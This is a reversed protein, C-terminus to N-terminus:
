IGHNDVGAAEGELALKYKHFQRFEGRTFVHLLMHSLKSWVWVLVGEGYWLPKLYQEVQVMYM